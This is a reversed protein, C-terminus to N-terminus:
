FTNEIHEHRNRKDIEECLAIAVHLLSVDFAYCM